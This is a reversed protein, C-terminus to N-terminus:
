FCCLDDRVRLFRPFRISNKYLCDYEVEIIFPKVFCDAKFRAAYPSNEIPHLFKEIVEDRLGVGVRCYPEYSGLLATVLSGIKRYGKGKMYGVVKLDMTDKRNKKKQWVISRRGPYYLSGKKKMVYGEYKTDFNEDIKELCPVFEILNATWQVSDLLREKRQEITLCTNNLWDFAYYCLHCPSNMYNQLMEFSAVGDEQLAVLEGDLISNRQIKGYLQDLFWKYRESCDEGNRSYIVINGEKDCHIQMRYGDLKPEIICQDLTLKSHSAVLMPNIFPMGLSIFDLYKLLSNM